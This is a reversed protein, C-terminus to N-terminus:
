VSIQLWPNTTFYEFPKEISNFFPAFVQEGTQDNNIAARDEPSLDSLWTKKGTGTITSLLDTKLFTAGWFDALLYYTRTSTNDVSGFDSVIRSKKRVIVREIPFIKTQGGGASPTGSIGSTGSNKEEHRVELYIAPDNTVTNGEFVFDLSLAQGTPFSNMSAIIGDEREIEVPKRIDILDVPSYISKAGDIIVIVDGNDRESVIMSKDTRAYLKSVDYFYAKNIEFDASFSFTIDTGLPVAFRDGTMRFEFPYGNKGNTAKFRFDPAYCYGNFPYIAATYVKNRRIAM